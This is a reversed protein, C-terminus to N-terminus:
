EDSGLVRCIEIVKEQGRLENNKQIKSSVIIETSIDLYNCIEKIQYELYRALNKEDQTIIRQILPFADSFYPARKYNSEITKLLKNIYVRDDLLEIENILKNPSSNHLRLNIRKPEGQILINNRNIWGRKIYNVDDYIVFKDVANILQWYGIYPVFYPQMIGIKM